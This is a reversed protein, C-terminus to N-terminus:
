RAMATAQRGRQDIQETLEASLRALEQGLAKNALYLQSLENRVSTLRNELAGKYKTLEALEYNVKELDAMAKTKLEEVLLRQQEAKETASIMAKNDLDLQRIRSSLDAIQENISRFKREYDTLKRRYIKNEVKAIGQQILSEATQSDLVATQIQGEGPGFKVTGIEEPTAGRRLRRLVAQGETNFPETDISNVIPADVPVEYEKEFRVAYWVSEPPDNENVPGGDRLYPQMVPLTRLQDLQVGSAAVFPTLREEPTGTFWQHGDVPCVEYLAWTGPVRGAAVQDASLPMTPEVTVSADTAATAKFEGIYAIPVRRNPEEDPSERFAHLITRPQINNKKPPAPDPNNPDVPPTTVITVAGTRADINPIGNRWVRGRDIVTRALEERVSMISDERGEFDRPDGRTVNQLQDETTTLQEQLKDHEGVWKARTKLTMAAYVCFTFTAVFVLFTFTVHVWRWTKTNLYTLFIFALVVLAAVIQYVITM